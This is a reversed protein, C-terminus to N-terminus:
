SVSAAPRRILPPIDRRADIGGSALPTKAPAHNPLASMDSWSFLRRVVSETTMGFVIMGDVELAGQARLQILRPRGVLDDDDIVGRGVVAAGEVRGEGLRRLGGVQHDAGHNRAVAEDRIRRGNAPQLALEAGQRGLHLTGGDAVGAM